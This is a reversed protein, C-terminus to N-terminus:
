SPMGYNTVYLRTSAKWRGIQVDKHFLKNEAQSSFSCPNNLAILRRNGTKALRRVVREIPETEIFPSGERTVEIRCCFRCLETRRERDTILLFSCKECYDVPM